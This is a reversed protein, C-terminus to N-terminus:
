KARLEVPTTSAALSGKMGERVITRVQYTGAPATLTAVAKLGDKKLSDLREDTLALDMISEKGTVLGGNADLLTTLFLLQQVHRGNATAFQLRDLDVTIRITLPVSGDKPAGASLAVAADIERLTQKSFVADDLRARPSQERKPDPSFYGPRFQITANRKSQFRIKLNHFKGDPSGAHFALLYSVEPSVALDMAGALDNTDRFYHGGTGEAINELPLL